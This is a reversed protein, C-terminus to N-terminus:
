CVMGVLTVALLVRGWVVRQHYIRLFERRLSEKGPPALIKIRVHM